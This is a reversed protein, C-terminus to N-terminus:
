EIPDYGGKNLPNCRLIRWISKASGKIAGYKELAQISYESCTPYFRCSPPLMPSILKKYGKILLILVRRM